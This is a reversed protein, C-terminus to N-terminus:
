GSGPPMRRPKHLAFPMTFSQNNLIPLRTTMMSITNSIPLIPNANKEYVTFRFFVLIGAVYILRSAQTKQEHNASNSRGGTLAAKATTAVQGIENKEPWASKARTAGAYKM